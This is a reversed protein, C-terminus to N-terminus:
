LITGLKAAKCYFLKETLKERPVTVMKKQKKTKKGNGYLNGISKDNTLVFIFELTSARVRQSITEEGNWYKLFHTHRWIHWGNKECSEYKLLHCTHCSAYNLDCHKSNVCFPIVDFNLIINKVCFNLYIKKRKTNSFKKQFNSLNDCKCKKFKPM